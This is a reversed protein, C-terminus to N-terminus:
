IGVGGMERIIKLTEEAEAEDLRSIAYGAHVLVYDGVKAGPLLDLAAKRLLGGGYDVTGIRGDVASLKGPVALCM